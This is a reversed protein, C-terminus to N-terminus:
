TKSIGCIPRDITTGAIGEHILVYAEPVSYGDREALKQYAEIQIPISFGKAQDETSVCAYITAFGAVVETVGTHV